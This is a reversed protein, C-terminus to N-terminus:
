RATMWVPDARARLVVGGSRASRGGSAYPSAAVPTRRTLSAVGYSSSFASSSSASRRPTATRLQVADEGLLTSLVRAGSAATDSLLHKSPGRVRLISRPTTSRRHAPSAALM